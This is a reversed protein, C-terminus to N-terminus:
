LLFIAMGVLTLVALAIMIKTGHIFARYTRAHEQYDMAPHGGSGSLDLSM